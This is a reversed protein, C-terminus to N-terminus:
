LRYREQALISGSSAKNTDTIPSGSLELAYLWQDTARYGLNNYEINATSVINLTSSGGTGGGGGSLGVLSLDGTQNQVVVPIAQVPGAAVVMCVGLV